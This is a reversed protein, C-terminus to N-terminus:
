PAVSYGRTQLCTSYSQNWNGAATAQAQQAQQQERRGERRERRQKSAGVVAGATAASQAENQRYEQRVEDPLHDYAEYGQGRVEAGAAGAAAGVAAGRARGGVHPSSSASAPPPPTAPDYGTAQTAASRCEAMDKSTQEATQGQTPTPVATPPPAQALLPAALLLAPYPLLSRSCRAVSFRILLSEAVIMFSSYMSARRSIVHCHAGYPNSRTSFLGNAAGAGARSASPTMVRQRNDGDRRYDKYAVVACCSGIRDLATSKHPLRLATKRFSELSKQDLQRQSQIAPSAVTQLRSKGVTFGVTRKQELIAGGPLVRVQMPAFLLRTVM